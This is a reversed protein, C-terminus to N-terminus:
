DGGGGGGGDGGSSGGDSDFWSSSVDGHRWKSRKTRFASVLFILALAVVIWIVKSHPEVTYKKYAAIFLVTSIIFPVLKM